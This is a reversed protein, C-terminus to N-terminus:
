GHPASLAKSRWAASRRICGDPAGVPAGGGVPSGRGGLRRLLARRANGDRHAARGRGRHRRRRRQRPHAGGRRRGRDPGRAATRAHRGRDARRDRRLLSADVGVAHLLLWNRFIQAFVAVLVFGIVRSGGHLSRLVALGRWLERGKGLALRRLGASALGIFVCCRSRCGGPCASRRWWRSRRPRPWCGRWPWSPSSPPSWPRCRHAPTRRRLAEPRRHARRRRPPQEARGRAGAREVRSLPRPPQRNRRGGRDHPALGRQPVRARGGAAARDGRDGVGRREVAGVHIGRPPRRAALHAGRRHGAVRGRHAPHPPPTRLRVCAHSWLRPRRSRAWRPASATPRKLLQARQKAAARVVHTRAAASTPSGSRRGQRRADANRSAVEERTEKWAAEGRSSSKWGAGDDHEAMRVKRAAGLTNVVPPRLSRSVRRHPSGIWVVGCAGADYGRLGLLLTPEVHSGEEDRLASGPHLGFPCIRADAFCRRSLHAMRWPRYADEAQGKAM